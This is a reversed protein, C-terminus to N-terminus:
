GVVKLKLRVPMGPTLGSVTEMQTVMCKVKAGDEMFTVADGCSVEQVDAAEIEIYEIAGSNDELMRKAKAVLSDHSCPETVKEVHSAWRGTRAYSFPSGDGLTASARDTYPYTDDDGKSDRSYYALVRNYRSDGRNDSRTVGPLRVCTRGEEYTYVSGKDSPLTYDDIRLEGWPTDTIELDAWGAVTNLVSMVTTGLEFFETSVTHKRMRDVEPAVYVSGGLDTALTTLEEVISRGQVCQFDDILEDQTYRYLPGYCTLTRTKQGGSTELEASKVFMTALVRELTQGQLETKQRIRVMQAVEGDEFDDGEALVITGSLRNETYYGWSLSCKAADIAVERGDQLSEPNVLNCTFTDKRGSAAWDTM